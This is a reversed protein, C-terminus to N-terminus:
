PGTEWRAPIPAAHNRWAVKGVSDHESWRCRLQKESGAGNPDTLKGTARRDAGVLSRFGVWPDGAKTSALECELVNGPQLGAAVADVSLGADPRVEYAYELTAPQPPTSGTSVMALLPAFAALGLGAAFLASAALLGGRRARFQRALANRLSDLSSPNVHEWKPAVCWAACVLSLGVSLVAFGFLVKGPSELDEVVESSFGAALSAVTAASAFIWKAHEQVRAIGASPDVIAQLKEIETKEQPSVPTGKVENVDDDTM